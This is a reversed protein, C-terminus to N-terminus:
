IQVFVKVLEGIVPGFSSPEQIGCNVIWKPLKNRIRSTRFRGDILIISAYDNRHRIARGICQNVAKMCLNEYYESGRRAEKNDLYQMRERLEPSTINAYPLGMMIVCRGLDDSFNIGESLKGGVVALLIAGTKGNLPEAIINSYKQLTDETSTTSEVFIQKKKEIRTWINMNKWAKAITELVSYSSFFVVIGGPIINCLNAITNGAENIMKPNDRNGHRFDFEVGGPGHSLSITVLQEKPIVHGCSFFHLKQCDLYPVLETVFESIPEMTGGAFVVSRSEEVIDQFSQSPNLMLYKIKLGVSYMLFAEICRLSSTHKSIYKDKDLSVEELKQYSKQQTFGQLKNCLKVDVIFRVIKFLNLHDIKIAEVFAYVELMKSENLKFDNSFIILQKLINLIQKIYLSTKGNFKTKYRDYYRELQELALHIQQEEVIASHISNIADIVNHAEDIIVISNKLRIGSIERASKQLLLNYPVCIIDAEVAAKRTGYYPCIKTEKGLIALEEIDSIIANAQNAYNFMMERQVDKDSPLYRCSKEKTSQMDLCKDNIRTVSTLQLVDQNICLNKRSGLSICKLDSYVTKKIEHVFQSLQSHTRSAYIIQPTQILPNENEDDDDEFYNTKTQLDEDSQYDDILCSEPIEVQGTEELKFKKTLKSSKRINDLLLKKKMAKMNQEDLEQLLKKKYRERSKEIMWKPDKPNIIEKELYENMKDEIINEQLKSIFDKQWKCAGGIISLSKGTGTPSEFFGVKGNQITEYLNRM